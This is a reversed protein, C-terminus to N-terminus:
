RRTRAGCSAPGRRPGPRRSRRRWWALLAELRRTALEDFAALTEVLGNSDTELEVVHPILSRNLARIARSSVLLSAGRRADLAANRAEEALLGEVDGTALRVLLADLSRVCSERVEAEDVRGSAVLGRVWDDLIADRRPGLREAARKLASAMKTV